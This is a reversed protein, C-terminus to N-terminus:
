ALGQQYLSSCIDITLARLTSTSISITGPHQRTSRCVGYHIPAAVFVPRQQAALSSVQWAQMTDTDLPLHPGHEEISGFPIIVSRTRQLGARFDTMTMEPILM